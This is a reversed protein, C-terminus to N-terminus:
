LKTLAECYMQILVWWWCLFIEESIGHQKIGSSPHLVCDVSIFHVCLFCIEARWLLIINMSLMRDWMTTQGWDMQLTLIYSTITFSSQPPFDKVCESPDSTQEPGEELSHSNQKVLWNKTSKCSLMHTWWRVEEGKLSYQNILQM